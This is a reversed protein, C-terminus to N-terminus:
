GGVLLGLVIQLPLFALFVFSIITMARRAPKLAAFIACVLGAIWILISMCGGVMMTILWRPIDGSQIKEETFKQIEGMSPQKGGFEDSMDTGAVVSTTLSIVLWSISLVLAWIAINNPHSSAPGVVVTEASPHSVSIPVMPQAMPVENSPEYTSQTPASVTNHCYPCAVPKGGWVSDIEIPNGCSPCVFQITM